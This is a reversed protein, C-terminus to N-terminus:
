GLGGLVSMTLLFAPFTSTSTKTVEVQNPKYIHVGHFPGFSVRMPSGYKPYWGDLFQKALAAFCVSKVISPFSSSSGMGAGEKFELSNGFLPTTPPGPWNKVIQFLFFSSIKFEQVVVLGLRRTHTSGPKAIVSPPLAM